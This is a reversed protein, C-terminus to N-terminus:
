LALHAASEMIREPRAPIEKEPRRLRDIALFQEAHDAPIRADKLRDGGPTSQRWQRAQREALTNGFQLERDAGRPIRSAVIGALVALRQLLQRNRAHHHVIGM